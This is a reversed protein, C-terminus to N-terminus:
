RDSTNVLQYGNTGVQTATPNHWIENGWRDYVNGFEDKTFPGGDDYGAPANVAPKSSTNEEATKIVLGSDTIVCNTNDLGRISDKLSTLSGSSSGLFAVYFEDENSTTQISTNKGFSLTVNGSKGNDELSVGLKSSGDFIISADQTTFLNAYGNSVKSDVNVAYWSNEGTIFKVNGKLTVDSNNLVLPAGSEALTHDITINELTASAKTGESAIVNVTHKTKCSVLIGNKIVVGEAEINVLHSANEFSIQDFAEGNSSIKHGGLDLVVPYTIEIMDDVIIDNSLCINKAEGALAINLSEYSDVYVVGEEQVPGIVNTKDLGENGEITAVKKGETIQSFNIKGADKFTNGSIIVEANGLTNCDPKPNLWKGQYGITSYTYAPDNNWNKEGNFVNSEILYNGETTAGLTIGSYDFINNTITVDMDFENYASIYLSAGYQKYQDYSYVSEDVGKLFEKSIPAFRCNNIKFEFSGNSVKKGVVEVAKNPAIKNMITLGSISVNNGFVTILNQTSWGGNSTYHTSYINARVGDPSTIPNGNADVGIIEINDSVIPLYWGDQGDVIYDTIPSLNYNGPYIKWIQNNHQSEVASILDEVSHINCVADECVSTEPVDNLTVSGEADGNSVNVEDNPLDDSENVSSEEATGDLSVENEFQNSNETLTVDVSSEADANSINVEGNLLDDSENISSEEAADDLIVENEFQNGNETLTVDVSGEDVNVDNARVTILGSSILLTCLVVLSIKKM